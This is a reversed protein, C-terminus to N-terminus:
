ILVLDKEEREGKIKLQIAFINEEKEHPLLILYLRTLVIFIGM